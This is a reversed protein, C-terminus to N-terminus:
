DYSEGIIQRIEGAHFEKPDKDTRVRLVTTDFLGLKQRILKWAKDGAADGDTWCIVQRFKSLQHATVNSLSTGLIAVANFGSIAVKIASVIDETVVIQGYDKTLWYAETELSGARIYKPREGHVARAIFGGKFPLCVRRTKPDYKIGFVETAQEPTIGYRLLWVRAKPATRADDMSLCRDPITRSAKLQDTAARAELIESLSRPAHAEFLSTECRFCHFSIGNIKNSILASPSSGCCAIKRKHGTPLLKARDQWGDM